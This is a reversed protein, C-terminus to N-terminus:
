LKKGLLTLFGSQNISLYYIAGHIEDFLHAKMLLVKRMVNFTHDRPNNGSILWILANEPVSSPTQMLFSNLEWYPRRSTM